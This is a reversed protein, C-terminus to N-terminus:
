GSVSYVCIVALVITLALPVSNGIALKKALKM